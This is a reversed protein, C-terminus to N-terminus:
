NLKTYLVRLSIKLKENAPPNTIVVREANTNASLSELSYGNNNYTGNQIKQLHSTINFKYRYMTVGDVTVAVRNAGFNGIIADDLVKPSGDDDIRLLNLYTPPTFITDYGTPDIVQYITVEAKNIAINDPLSDLGAFTIKAKTGAGAQVYALADGASSPNSIAASVVSGNYNHDFHNVAFSSAGIPIYYTLSDAIDSHYHIELRSITNRLDLYVLGQGNQGTNTTIYLGKFYSHFATNNALDSTDAGIIDTLLNKDLTVRLHPAFKLNKVAISDTLNPKYNYLNGVAPVKVAFSHNYNYNGGIMEENLEYVNVDFGQNFKGYTGSYKISLVVSDLVPNGGFFVNSSTLSFQTYVSAYTKGFTPDNLNGLVGINVSDTELYSVALTNVKGYLTDKDLLLEDDGTLLDGNNIVPEKKCSDLLVVSSTIILASILTRLCRL